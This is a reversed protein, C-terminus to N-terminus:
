LGAQDLASQLSTLYADSTYTAGSVSQVKASQAALVEKRLVPAARNSISVSRNDDDTLKLAVVDTISGNAVVVQVQVSGYRTSVSSGTFTGSTGSPAAATAEPTPTASPAATASASASSSPAPTASASASPAPAPAANASSASSADPTVATEALGTSAQAHAGLQWGIALVAGSSLVSWVAARRRM